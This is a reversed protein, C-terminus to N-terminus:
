FNSKNIKFYKFRLSEGYGFIILIKYVAYYVLAWQLGGFSSTVTWFAYLRLSSLAPDYRNIFISKYYFAIAKGIIYGALYIIFIGYFGFNLYAEVPLTVNFGFGYNWYGSAGYFGNLIDQGNDLGLSHRTNHPMFNFINNILSIGYSFDHNKLYQITLMWVETVDGDPRYLIRELISPTQIQAQNDHYIGVLVNKLFLTSLILLLIIISKYKYVQNKNIYIVLSFGIIIFIIFFGRQALISTILFLIIIKLIGIFLNGYYFTLVAHVTSACLIVIVFPFYYRLLPNQISVTTERNIFLIDSGGIYLFVVCSIISLIFLINELNKNIIIEKKIIIKNLTFLKRMGFYMGSTYTIMFISSILYGFQYDNFNYFERTIVTGDNLLIAFPRILLAYLIFIITFYNISPFRISTYIFIFLSILVLSLSIYYM